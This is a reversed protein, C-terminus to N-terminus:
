LKWKYKFIVFKAYNMFEKIKNVNEIDLLIGKLKLKVMSLSVLTRIRWMMKWKVAMIAEVKERAIKMINNRITRQNTIRTVWKDNDFIEKNNIM